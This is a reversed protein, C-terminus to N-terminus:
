SSRDFKPQTTAAARREAREALIEYDEAIKLMTRKSQQDRMDEALVRIEKARALWHKPDDLLNQHKMRYASFGHCHLARM